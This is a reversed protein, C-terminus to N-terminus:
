HTRENTPPDDETVDFELGGGRLHEQLLVFHARCLDPSLVPGEQNMAVGALTYTVGACWGMEAAGRVLARVDATSTINAGGLVGALRKGLICAVCGPDGPRVEVAQCVAGNHTVFGMVTPSRRSGRLITRPTEGAKPKRGNTHMEAWIWFAQICEPCRITNCFHPLPKRHRGM